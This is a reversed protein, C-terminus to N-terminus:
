PRRRCPTPPESPPPLWHLFTAHARGGVNDRALDGPVVGKLAEARRDIERRDPHRLEIQLAAEQVGVFAQALNEPPLAGVEEGARELLERKGVIQWAAQFQSRPQGGVLRCTVLKLFAEDPWVARDDPRADRHRPYTAGVAGHVEEYAGCFVNGFLAGCLVGEPRRLLTRARRQVRRLDADKSEVDAAVREIPRITQFADEAAVAVDRELLEEVDHM